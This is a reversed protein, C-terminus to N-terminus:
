LLNLDLERALAAREAELAAIAAPAGDRTPRREPHAIMVLDRAILRERGDADLVAVHREQERLALAAHFRGEDLYEVISGAYHPQYKAGSGMVSKM